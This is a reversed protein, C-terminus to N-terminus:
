TAATAGGGGLGMGSFLGYISAVDKATNLIRGWEFPSRNKGVQFRPDEYHAAQQAMAAGYPDDGKGWQPSGGGSGQEAARLKNVEDMIMQGVDVPETSTLHEPLEAVRLAEMEEESLQKNGLFHEQAIKGAGQALWRPAEKYAVDDKRAEGVQYGQLPLGYRGMLATEAALGRMAMREQAETARNAADSSMQAGKLTTLGSIASPIATNWWPQAEYVGRGSRDSTADGSKDSDDTGFYGKPIGLEAMIQQITSLEGTLEETTKGGITQQSQKGAEQSSKVSQSFDRVARNIPSTSLFNPNTVNGGLWTQGTYGNGM